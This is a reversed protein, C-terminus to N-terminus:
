RKRRILALGGLGLLAMTAPEPCLDAQDFYYVGGVATQNFTEGWHPIVILGLANPSAAIMDKVGYKLGTAPDTWRYKSYNLWFTFTEDGATPLWTSTVWTTSWWGRGPYNVSDIDFLPNSTTACIALTLGPRCWAGSDIGWDAARLTVSIQLVNNDFFSDVAGEIKALDIVAAENWWTEPVKVNMSYLDGPVGSGADGASLTPYGQEGSGWAGDTAWIPYGSKYGGPMNSGNTWGQLTQDEWDSITVDAYIASALCLVICLSVLKKCM